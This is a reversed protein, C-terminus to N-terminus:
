LLYARKRLVGASHRFLKGYGIIQLEGLKEVVKEAIFKKAESMRRIRSFAERVKRKQGMILDWREVFEDIKLSWEYRRKIQKFGWEIQSRNQYIERKIKDARKLFENFANLYFDGDLYKNNIRDRDVLWRLRYVAVAYNLRAYIAFRKICTEQLDVDTIANWKMFARRKGLPRKRSIKKIFNFNQFKKARIDEISFSNIQHAKYITFISKLRLNKGKELTKRLKLLFSTIGVLRSMKISNLAKIEDYDYNLHNDKIKMISTDMYGIETLLKTSTKM